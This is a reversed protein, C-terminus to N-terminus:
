PNTLLVYDNAYEYCNIPNAATAPKSVYKGQASPNVFFIHTVCIPEQKWHPAPRVLNPNQKMPTCTTLQLQRSSFCMLHTDSLNSADMCLVCTPPTTSLCLHHTDAAFIELGSRSASLHSDFFTSHICISTATTNQVHVTHLSWNILVLYCFNWSDVSVSLRHNVLTFWIDITTLWVQFLKQPVKSVLKKKGGSFWHSIVPSQHSTVPLISTMKDAKGTSSIFQPWNIDSKVPLWCNSKGSCISTM